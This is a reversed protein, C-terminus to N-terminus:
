SEKISGWTVALKRSFEVALAAQELGNKMIGEVDAATLTDNFIAVEDIIGQAPETGSTNTVGITVPASNQLPDIGGEEGLTIEEFSEGDVYTLIRKMDYTVAVHHWKEDTVRGAVCSNWGNDGKFGGYLRGEPTVALYFNRVDGAVEGKEVLAQYAGTDVLNVWATISFAALSFADDHPILVYSNGGGPLELASGFKGEAWRVDGVFEGKHGNGSSDEVVEGENDDFLWIGVITEPDMAYCTFAFASVAIFVITGALSKVKCVEKSSNCNIGFLM